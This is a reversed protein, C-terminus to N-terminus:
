LEAPLTMAEKHTDSIAGTEERTLRVHVGTTIYPYVVVSAKAHARHAIDPLFAQTYFGPPRLEALTHETATTALHGFNLGHRANDEVSSHAIGARMVAPTEQYRSHGRQQVSEPPAGGPSVSQQLPEGEGPNGELPTGGPLAKEM